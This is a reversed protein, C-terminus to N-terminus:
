NSTSSTLIEFSHPNLTLTAKKNEFEIKGTFNTKTSAPVEGIDIKQVEASKNFVVWVQDQFYSRRYSMIKESTALWNFDGFLLAMSNRRLHVLKETTARNLQEQDSLNEFRMMRRNDPDNGGPDGIEDGYYIVPIGPITMMFATLSQLKAYAVTDKIEIKRKWGAKKADEDFRVSGDAYSIFRARDQNGTINGMLNHDGFWSMSETLSNSLRTFPVEDRAFTNVADDYVNFDFQADLMGTNVYSNVLERSGYTEGIQYIPRKVKSKVKKTLERWFLLDIHKSADHRFGDLEYKELWFLATDTMPDVVERKRLDLTPMFVDFWTTLRQDDWRETNITGDPLYLPTFWEPKLKFLPHEQHIHHAVYDLIVNMDQAHAENLLEELEAKSGFRYDIQQLSVPWYGHYGSFTTPPDIYKGYAGKPNQSIPSLWITNIGLKKFYGDKLKQTVGAIDGGYYNAKPLINPDKVPEDNGKKGNNFRDIMMFYLIQAEKDQRTLAAADLVVEGNQLPILVDNSIGTENAAWVRIHTRVEKTAQDPIPIILQDKKQVVPLSFNKWYATVETAPNSLQLTISQGNTKYTTLRPLKKADPREIKLLSNWGGAGNDISDNNSPDRIEKGDVVFLYQYNGPNLLLSLTFMGGENKFESAAANWANFEGKTKVEKAKGSFTFTVAKKNIKQLPIAYSVGGSWLQLSAITSKMEGTLSLNRGDRNQTLGTPVSISDIKALDLVYDELNVYTSDPNILLPSANGIILGTDNFQIKSKKECSSLGILLIALFVCVINGTSLLRKLKMPLPSM